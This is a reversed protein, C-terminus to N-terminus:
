LWFMQLGFVETLARYACAERGLFGLARELAVLSAFVVAVVVIFCIAQDDHRSLGGEDAVFERLLSRCFTKDVVHEAENLL